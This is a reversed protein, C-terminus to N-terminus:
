IGETLILVLHFIYEGNTPVDAASIQASQNGHVSDSSETSVKAEPKSDKRLLKKEDRQHHQSTEKNEKAVPTVAVNTASVITSHAADKSSKNTSSDQDITVAEKDVTSSPDKFSDKHERAPQEVRQQKRGGKGPSEREKKSPM